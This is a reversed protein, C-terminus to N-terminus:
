AAFPSKPLFVLCALAFAPTGPDDALPFVGNLVEAYDDNPWDVPERSFRICPLTIAETFFVPWRVQSVRPTAPTFVKGTLDLPFNEAIFTGCYIFRFAGGELREAMLLNPATKYVAMFDFDRRKPVAGGNLSTWYAHVGAILPQRPADDDFSRVSVKEPQM